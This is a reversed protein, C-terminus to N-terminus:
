NIWVQLNVGAASGTLGGDTTTSFVSMATDMMIPPNFDVQEQGTTAPLLIQFLPVTTGLIVNAALANFVQVFAVAASRNQVLIKGIGVRVLSVNQGTDNLGTFHTARIAEM